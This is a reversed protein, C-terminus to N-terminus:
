LRNVKSTVRYCTTSRAQIRTEDFICKWYFNLMGVIQRRQKVAKPEPFNQTIVVKETSPAIGTSLVIYGLLLVKDQFFECKSPNVVVGYKTLCEFVINLHELHQEEYKSSILIDHIYAYVFDLNNLEEHIFRQFIQTDNRLM